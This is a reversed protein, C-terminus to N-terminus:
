ESFYACSSIYATYKQLFTNNQAWNEHSLYNIFWLHAICTNIFLTHARIIVQSKFAQYMWELKGIDLQEINLCILIRGSEITQWDSSACLTSM